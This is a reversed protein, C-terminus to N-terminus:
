GSNVCALIDQKKMHLHIIEGSKTWEDDCPTIVDM